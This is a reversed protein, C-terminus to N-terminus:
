GGRLEVVGGLKALLGRGEDSDPDEEIEPAHRGVEDAHEAGEGERQASAM